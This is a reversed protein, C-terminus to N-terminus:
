RLLVFATQSCWNKIKETKSIFNIISIIFIVFNLRYLIEMVIIADKKCFTDDQKVKMVKDKM